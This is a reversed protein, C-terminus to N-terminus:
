TTAASADEETLLTLLTHLRRAQTLLRSGGRRAALEGLHPLEGRGGAREVCEAAVALLDGVGRAAATGAAPGALLAPLAARLLGWVTGCAGTAAATRVCEVVRVPKVAGMAMLRGLLEGLRDTDLQGSAALVLLADVAAVREEARRAGAGYAVSLLLADGVPGPSEALLPLYGVELPIDDVAGASVVALLRAAVTEREGPLIALWHPYAPFGWHYCQQGRETPDVPAGLPRFFPPLERSRLEPVGGTRVLLRSETGVIEAAPAAPAPATLLAALRDGEPTGLATAAAAVGVSADPDAPVDHRVRRLAQAFDAEAVPAGLRRYEGLRAVLEGAELLGSAWTPTSLLFPLPETRLRYATEYLRARWPRELKAHVCDSRQSGDKRLAKHLTSPKVGDFLSALVVEVGYPRARFNTDASARPGDEPYWWRGAVVPRLAEVLAEHDRYTHRVLGDLVREFVAVDETRAALLAGVEEALEEVTEPAPDVRRALPVPPLIEEYVEPTGAELAEPVVGLAAAARPRLAGSLLEASALMEDRAGQDARGAWREVLKVAREQLDTDPHGFGEAVAPLLASAESPSARLVKGLLVLQARVLKKEPRFLVGRSMEALQRATLEGDLALATLVSQAHFAIAVAADTALAMWDGTREREEERTPSLAKFLALFARQDVTSGGRLLRAVCGDIMTRRDLLGQETLQALAPIWGQADDQGYTWELRWGIDDLEFLANVLPVLHADRGLREALLPGSLQWTTTSSNLWGRVYSDTTPVECGSLRVLGSMLAFPVGASEPRDALRAAVDAQWQRDRNALLNLLVPPAAPAWAMESGSIWAAAAAAGSHCAAGAAHLAPRIQRARNSWLEKRLEIRLAKLEPVAARREETTMDTVLEIVASVKGERVAAMLTDTTTM